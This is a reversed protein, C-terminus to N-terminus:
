KWEDESEVFDVFADVRNCLYTKMIDSFEGRAGEKPVPVFFTALVQDLIVHAVNWYDKDEECSALHKELVVNMCNTCLRRRKRDFSPRETKPLRTEVGCNVCDIVEGCAGQLEGDIM